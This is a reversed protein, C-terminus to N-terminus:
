QGAQTLLCGGMVEHFFGTYTVFGWLGRSVQTNGSRPPITAAEWKGADSPYEQACFIGPFLM